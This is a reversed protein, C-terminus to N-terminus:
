RGPSGSTRRGTRRCWPRSCGGGADRISTRLSVGILPAAPTGKPRYVRALLETGDPKAYVVDAEDVEYPASADFRVSTTM